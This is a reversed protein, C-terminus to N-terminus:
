NQALNYLRRDSGFASEQDARKQAAREAAQNLLRQDSGATPSQQAEARIRAGQEIAALRQNLAQRETQVGPTGAGPLNYLRQDSGFASERQAQAQASRELGQRYLKWDSGDIGQPVQSVFPAVGPSPPSQSPSGSGIAMWLAAVGVAAAVVTTIALALRGRHPTPPGVPKGGGRKPQSPIKVGTRRSTTPNIQTSM